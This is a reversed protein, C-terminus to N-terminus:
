LWKPERKEIFAAIGERAADTTRATAMNAAGISLQTFLHEGITENLMRKAMQHSERAGAACAQALEFSRAWIFDDGVIEHVLGLNLAAAAAIPKGSFLVSAALGTGVRFCLLPTTIGASLGRRAEPLQLRSDHGVVVIDSAMMLALGSGIAWGNVAAIIPKPYRLMTEILRQLQRVDEYWREFSNDAGATEQLQHLDTGASFDAGAGTLIVARVRKEQNLDEFANILSEILERSLANRRHPRNLTITGSPDDVRVLVNDSM